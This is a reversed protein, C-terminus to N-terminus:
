REHKIQADEAQNQDDDENNVSASSIPLSANQRRTSSAKTKVELDYIPNAPAM